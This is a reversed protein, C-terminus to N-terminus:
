FITGPWNGRGMGLPEAPFRFAQGNAYDEAEKAENLKAMFVGLQGTYQREGDKRIVVTGAREDDCYKYLRYLMGECFLEFYCDPSTFATALNGSVIKTPVKQYEGTITSTVTGSISAASDLRVLSLNPIWAACRFENWSKREVLNPEIWEALDLPNSQNPTVDTRNIRIRIFRYIDTQVPTYDQTQDAVTIATISALTWTWPLTTHITSNVQDLLITTQAAAISRQRIYGSCITLVDSPSYNAM